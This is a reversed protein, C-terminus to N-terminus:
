CLIQVLTVYCHTLFCVNFPGQTNNQSCVFISFSLCSYMSLVNIVAYQGVIDPLQECCWWGQRMRVSYVRYNLRNSVAQFCNRCWVGNMVFQCRADTHPMMTYLLHYMCIVIAPINDSCPQEATYHNPGYLNYIVKLHLEAWKSFYAAALSM